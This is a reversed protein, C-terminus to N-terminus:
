DIIIRHSEKGLEKAKNYTWLGGGDGRGKPDICYLIDCETAIAVIGLAAMKSEEM